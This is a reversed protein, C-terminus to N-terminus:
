PESARRLQGAFDQYGYKAPSRVGNRGPPAHPPMLLAQQDGRLVINGKADLDFQGLRGGVVSTLGTRGRPYLFLLLRQGPRYQPGSDWAGTWQTLTFTQGARTGRLAREVRLTVQVVPVRGPQPPPREVRMVRGAFIFGAKRTLQTLSLPAPGTAQALSCFGLGAALLAVRLARPHSKPSV